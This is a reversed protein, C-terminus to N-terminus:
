EDEDEEKVEWLELFNGCNRCKIPRLVLPLQFFEGCKSCIYEGTQIHYKEFIDEWHTKVEQRAMQQALNKAEQELNKIYNYDEKFLKFNNPEKMLIGFVQIGFLEITTDLFNTKKFLSIAESDEKLEELDKVINVGLVWKYKDPNFLLGEEDRVKKYVDFLKQYTGRM